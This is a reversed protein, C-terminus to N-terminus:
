HKSLFYCGLAGDPRTELRHLINLGETLHKEAKQFAHDDTFLNGLWIHARGDMHIEHHERASQLTEAFLQMAM